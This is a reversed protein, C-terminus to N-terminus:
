RRGRIRLMHLLCRAKLLARLARYLNLPLPCHSADPTATSAVSLLKILPAIFLLYSTFSVGRRPQNFHLVAWPSYERELQM